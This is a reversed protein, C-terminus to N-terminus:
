AVLRGGREANGGVHVLGFRALQDPDLLSAGCVLLGCLSARILEFDPDRFAPRDAAVVLVDCGILCTYPGSAYLLQDGLLWRVDEMGNPEYLCVDAGADILARLLMLGEPVDTHPDLPFGWVAIRRDTLDPGLHRRLTALIEDATTSM